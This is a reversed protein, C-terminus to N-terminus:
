NVIGSLLVISVIFVLFIASAMKKAIKSGSSGPGLLLETKIQRLM